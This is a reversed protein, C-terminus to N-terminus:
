PLPIDLIQGEELGSDALRNYLAIERPNLNYRAAITEITEEKQVICMRVKRFSEEEARSLFLTQWDLENNRTGAAAHAQAAEEDDEPEAEELPKFAVKPEVAPEAVPEVTAETTGESIPEAAPQEAAHPRAQRRRTDEDELWGDADMSEGEMAPATAPMAPSWDDFGGSEQPDSQPMASAPEDDPVEESDDLLGAQKGPGPRDVLDAGHQSPVAQPPLSGADPVHGSVVEVPESMPKKKAKAQHIAVIEEEGGSARVDTQRDAPREAPGDGPGEAPHDTRYDAQHDAARDPLGTLLLVGTVNLSRSSLREIDLQEIELRIDDGGTASRTPLSIDVPIRHTFTRQVTGDGEPAYVVTLQLHGKVTSGDNASDRRVFPLLEMQELEGIAPLEEPLRVREFLDFRLGTEEAM